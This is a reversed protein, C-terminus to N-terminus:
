LLRLKMGLEEALLNRINEEPYAIRCVPCKKEPLSEQCMECILHGRPCQFVKPKASFCCVCELAKELVETRDDTIETTLEAQGLVASLTQDMEDREKQAKALRRKLIDIEEIEKEFMSMTKEMEENEGQLKAVKLRLQGVEDQLRRTEEESKEKYEEENRKAIEM